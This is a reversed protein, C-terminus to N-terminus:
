NIENIGFSFFSFYASIWNNYRVVWIHLQSFGNQFTKLLTQKLITNLENRAAITDYIEM